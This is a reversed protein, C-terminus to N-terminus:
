CGELCFAERAEFEPPHRSSIVVNSTCFGGVLTQWAEQRHNPLLMIMAASDCQLELMLM